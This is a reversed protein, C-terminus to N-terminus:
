WRGGIIYPPWWYVAAWVGHNSARGWGQAWDSLIDGAEECFDFLDPQYVGCAIVGSWIAGDAVDAYSAIIWFHNSTKGFALDPSIGHPSAQTAEIRAVGAFAKQMDALLKARQAPTATDRRWQAYEARTMRIAQPRISAAARAPAPRSASASTAASASGATVLALTSVVALVGGALALKRMGSLRGRGTHGGKIQEM